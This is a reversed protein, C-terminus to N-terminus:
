WLLAGIGGFVFLAVIAGALWYKRAGYDIRHAAILSAPFKVLKGQVKVQSADPIVNM